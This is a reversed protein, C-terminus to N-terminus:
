AGTYTVARGETQWRDVSRKRGRGCRGRGGEKVEHGWTAWRRTRDARVVDLRVDGMKGVGAWRRVVVEM